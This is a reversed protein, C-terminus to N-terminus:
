RHVRRKGARRFFAWVLSATFAAAGLGATRFRPALGARLSADGWGATWVGAPRLGRISVAGWPRERCGAALVVAGARVLASEYNPFQRPAGCLLIHPPM